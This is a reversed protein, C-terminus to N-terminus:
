VRMYTWSPPLSPALSTFSVSSEKPRKRLSLWGSGGLRDDASGQAMTGKSLGIFSQYNVKRPM